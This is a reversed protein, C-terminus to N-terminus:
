GFVDSILFDPFSGNSLVERLLTSSAGAKTLPDALQKGKEVWKVVFENDKLKRRLGGIPIRLGKDEITNSTQLENFLSNCDTVCIIPVNIKLIEKLMVEILECTEIAEIMAWSEGALSSKVVRKIKKSQWTLPCCRGDRSALFAIHAGQSSGDRLNGYAADCFVVISVISLDLKPYRLTLKNKKMYDISKNVLKLDGITASNLTTSAICTYYAMDPRTQSSVWLMQGCLSRMKKYEDSAINLKNNVTRSQEIEIKEVEDIYQHQSIEICGNRQKVTLGTYRFNNEVETSFLFKQKLPKMVQHLFM